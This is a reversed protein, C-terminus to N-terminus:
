QADQIKESLDRARDPPVTGSACTPADYNGCGGRWRELRKTEPKAIAPLREFWGPAMM